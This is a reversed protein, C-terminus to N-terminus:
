LSRSRDKCTGGGDRRSKPCGGREGRGLIMRICCWASGLLSVCPLTPAGQWRQWDQRGVLFHQADADCWYPLCHPELSPHSTKKYSVNSLPPLSGVLLPMAQQGSRGAATAAAEEALLREKEQRLRELERQHHRQLEEMVQQHSSEMEALSRECAEQRALSLLSSPSLPRPVCPSPGRCAGLWALM